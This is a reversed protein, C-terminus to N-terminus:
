RNVFEDVKPRYPYASVLENKNRVVIRMTTLPTVSDKGLGVVRGVDVIFADPDRPLAPRRAKLWAEDLLDLLKSQPVTFISQKEKYHAVTLHGAIHEIRNRGQRDYGVIRLGNSTTWDDRGNRKLRGSRVGESTIDVAIAPISTPSLVLRVGTPPPAASGTVSKAKGGAFIRRVADGGSSGRSGVNAALVLTAQALSTGAQQLESDCQANNITEVIDIVGRVFDLAASGLTYFAMGVLAIDAIFGVGVAHSAGWIALVAATTPLDELWEEYARGLEAPLAAITHQLVRQLKDNFSRQAVPKLQLGLPDINAVPNNGAFAYVNIGGAQGSPDTSLYRGSDPDLYRRLNYHLGTEEDFYQNSGRLHLPQRNHESLSARGFGSVEAQWTIQKKDDVLARPAGTHDAIIAYVDTATAGGAGPAVTALTRGLLSARAQLMAVPRSGAHDPLWVYQRTIRAAGEEVEAEASLESGDHFFYTLKKGDARYVLKSIREGFPNYRYEALPKGDRTVKILRQQSDWQYDTTGIRTISGAANYAYAARQSNHVAALIRNSAPDVAYRTTGSAATKTLLNGGDDFQLNLRDSSTAATKILGARAIGTLRGLPDYQYGFGQANVPALPRRQTLHGGADRLHSEEWIGPAGIRTISGSRDLQRQWGVGHALEIHQRNYGDDADNLGQAIVTRGFLDKRTIAQLLGAKPHVAGNYHYHLRQGDPLTKQQLRGQSDYAYATTFRHGDIVRLHETLRAADDYRYQEEGAPYRIRVPRGHAGYELHTKGEATDQEIVRGAADYRYRITRADPTAVATTKSLLRDAADWQYRTNGSDPSIHQVLRGFDDHLTRTTLRRPDTLETLKRHNDYVLRTALHGPEFVAEPLGDAARVIRTSQDGPGSVEEIAATIRRMGAPAQNDTLAQAPGEQQALSGDPNFLSRTQLRGERDREIGIRNNQADFLAALRGDRGYALHVKQGSAQTVESLQGLANYRFHEAVGARSLRLIRGTADLQYDFPIGGPAVINLPRGALDRRTIRLSQGGPAIIQTPYDGRADYHYRTIDSDAPAAGPGNPLPGDMAGLLSRGNIAAYSFHTSREIPQPGRGETDPVWGSETVQLPQQLANYRIRVQHEKGPVVSPRAILVPHPSALGAAGPPAYEYRALLQPRGPKGEDHITKSVSLRRGYADYDYRTSETPEGQEDLRIIASLRGIRDYEYRVDTEPCSACGPGRVELMRYEGGIIAHRFVTVQGLSNTLRTVGPQSRDFGVQEVGTGPVPKGQADHRLPEGRVSLIGKGAADYAYTSIREQMARGDSGTGSVSIGTLLTPHRPDEHHYHRTVTSTTTGRETWAHRKRDHDYSAPLHVRVLTALLRDPHIDSGRPAQSGYEYRFEGVPTDIAVVGQYRDNRAAAQRDLYRLQLSRGQPDTVKLLDGNPARQLSVFEGTPALIQVLRGQPNFLLQRGEPWHWTYEPGEPTDRITIKGRSPDDSACTGPDKPDRHFILRSGDAQLIHLSNGRVFLDTEYSLRWGRGIIGNADAPRSFGSNYHRVLELGLVGPLAPMDVERQYKNGTIINIPNGAGARTQATPFVAPGATECAAGTGVPGCSGLVAQAFASNLSLAFALFICGACLRRFLIRM